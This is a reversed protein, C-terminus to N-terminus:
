STFKTFAKISKSNALLAELGFLVFLSFISYFILSINEPSIGFLPLKVQPLVISLIVGCFTGALFFLWSAKIDGSIKVKSQEYEKIEMMVEDEFNSSPLELRSKSMIQKFFEDESKRGM